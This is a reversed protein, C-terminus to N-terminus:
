RREWPEQWEIGAIEFVEQESKPVIREGTSMREFVGYAHVKFGNRGATEILRLNFDRPGTRIVLTLWWNDETTAFFDVPVGTAKYRALKNKEGWTASGRVNLRKEIIGCNLMIDISGDTLNQEGETFMDLKVPRVTPIYVIEVDGVSQKRRRLSGAIIARESQFGALIAMAAEIAVARPFKPKEAPITEAM